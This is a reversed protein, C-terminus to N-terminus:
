RQGGGCHFMESVCLQMSRYSPRTHTCTAHMRLPPVPTHERLATITHYNNSWGDSADRTLCMVRRRLLGRRGKARVRGACLFVDQACAGRSTGMDATGHLLTSALLDFLQNHIQSQAETTETSRVIMSYFNHNYETRNNYNIFYFLYIFM